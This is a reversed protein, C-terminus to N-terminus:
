SFLNPNSNKYAEIRANLEAKHQELEAEDTIFEVGAVFHKEEIITPPAVPYGADNVFYVGNIGEGIKPTFIATYEDWGHYLRDSILRNPVGTIYSCQKISCKMGYVEIKRHTPMEFIDDFSYGNHYRDYMTSLSITSKKIDRWEILTHTEGNHTVYINDERNNAQTKATAWRCNEPCYNAHYNIRDITLRTKPTKEKEKEEDYGNEISWKRFNKFGNKGLWEDCIKIGKNIYNRIHEESAGKRYGCRRLIERYKGYLPSKRSLGDQTSSVEHHYCGCSTTRGHVLSSGRVIVEKGCDCRCRWMAFIKEKKKKGNKDIPNYNPGHVQPKNPAREIVTLRGFRQGTLDIVTSM